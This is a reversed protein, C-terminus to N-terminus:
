EKRWRDKLKKRQQEGGGASEEIKTDSKRRDV